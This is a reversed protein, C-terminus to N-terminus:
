RGDIVEITGDDMVRGRLFRHSDPNVVRIVSGPQGGDAAVFTATVQVAGSAAVVTVSDGPEVKRRLAVANAPVPEGAPLLRLARSGVLEAMTPLRRLPVEVIARTSEDLDEAKLSEGRAVARTTVVFAGTVNVTATAPLAAGTTTVLTFRIPEGLKAAPDPRAERFVPAAGDIDVSEVVVTAEIGLREAVAERIADAASLAPAQASLTASACVGLLVASATVIRRAFARVMTM